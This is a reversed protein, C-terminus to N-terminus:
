RAWSKAVQLRRGAVQLRRGAVHPWRGQVLLAGVHAGKPLLAVQGEPEALFGKGEAMPLLHLMSTATSRMGTNIMEALTSDLRCLATTM